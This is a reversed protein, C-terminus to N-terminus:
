LTVVQALGTRLVGRRAYQLRKMDETPDYVLADAELDGAHILKPSYNGADYDNYCQDEANVSPGLIM